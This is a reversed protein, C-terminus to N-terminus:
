FEFRGALQIVRNLGSFNNSDLIQGFSPSNINFTTNSVPSQSSLVGALFNTHNLVNFADARIQFRVHESFRFNKTLSMDLESFLPGNIITRDLNGTQGPGNNFFVQGSFPTRGFGNSARGTNPDIVSPNIYYINGNQQFIGILNNIQDLTLTSIASQNASRGARNLTGRPDVISLPTGTNIRLIGGLQWGGIIRDLVRSSTNFFRKGKGFPLDYVADLNFIHTQDYDARGYDLRQNRNDLFAAVRTQAEANVGPNGPAIDTLTKQFTYNAQFFLGKSFRRRVEVQLSNYNYKGLNGLLDAIGINQNPLIRVSGTQGLLVYRRALDAATGARLQNRVANSRLSGGNALNPFVTLPQCGASTCAPNGTLLLNARARNFDALFGNDRIDIQNFDVVQILEHSRGGVYRIELASKFGIERQIGFNYEEIRPLQINPDIAFAVANFGQLANQSAFTFPPPVFTPTPVPPPANIFSALTFDNVTQTSLRFIMLRKEDLM